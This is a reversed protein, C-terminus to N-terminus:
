HIVGKWWGPRHEWQDTEPNFRYDVPDNGAPLIYAWCNRRITEQHERGRLHLVIAKERAAAQNYLELVEPPLEEPPASPIVRLREGDLELKFGAGELRAILDPLPPWRDLFTSRKREPEPPQEQELAAKVRAEEEDTCPLTWSYLNDLLGADQREELYRRLEEQRAKLWRLAAKVPGPADEWSPWPKKVKLRGDQLYVRVGYRSLLELLGAITDPKSDAKSPSTTSNM